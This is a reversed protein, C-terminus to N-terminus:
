QLDLDALDMHEVGGDIHWTFLKGGSMGSGAHSGATSPGAGSFPRASFLGSPSCQRDACFCSNAPNEEPTGFM